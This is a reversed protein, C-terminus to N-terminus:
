PLLNDLFIGKLSGLVIPAGNSRFDNNMITYNVTLSDTILAAGSNNSIVNGEMYLNPSESINAGVGNRKITNRMFFLNSGGGMYVRVGYGTNDHFNNDEIYEDNSGNIINIGGRSNFVENHHIWNYPGSDVHTSGTNGVGFGDGGSVNMVTNYRLENSYEDEGHLDFADLTTANALNNEILNHHASYQVVVGHRLVPGFTSQTVWCNATTDYGLMVGYGEGGGGLATANKFTCSQVLINDSHRVAVAFKEFGEVTVNKIAIRSSNVAGTSGSGIYFGYQMSQGGTLNISFDSVTFNKVGPKAEFMQSNPNDVGQDSFQANLVVGSQSEGRISVGTKLQIDRTKLHYLGNPIYIEDGSVAAAIANKIATSDDNSSNNPTAGYTVVNLTRGTVPSPFLFPSNLGADYKQTKASAVNSVRGSTRLQYRYTTDSSLNSSQYSRSSAALTAIPVFPGDGAAREVTFAGPSLLGSVTWSLDVRIPSVTAAGLTITLQSAIPRPGDFSVRIQASDLGGDFLQRSELQEIVANM